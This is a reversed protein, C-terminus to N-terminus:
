GSESETDQQVNFTVRRTQPPAPNKQRTEQMTGSRMHNSSAELARPPENQRRRRQKKKKARSSAVPQPPTGPAPDQNMTPSAQQMDAERRTAQQRRSRSPIARQVLSEMPPQTQQVSSSRKGKKKPPPSKTPPPPPPNHSPGPESDQYMTSPSTEEYSFAMYVAYAISRRTTKGTAFTKNVVPVRPDPHSLLYHHLLKQEMALTFDEQHVRCQGGCTDIVTQRTIAGLVVLGDRGYDKWKHDGWRSSIGNKKWTKHDDPDFKRFGGPKRKRQMYTKGIYIKAITRDSQTELDQVTQELQEILTRKIGKVETETTLDALNCAYNRAGRLLDDYEVGGM